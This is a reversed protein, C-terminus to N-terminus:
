GRKKKRGSKRRGKQTMDAMNDYQTGLFLHAPNVCIPIDCKHLVQLDELYGKHMRYSKRHAYDHRGWGGYRDVYPGNWLWCGTNPEPTIRNYFDDDNLARM